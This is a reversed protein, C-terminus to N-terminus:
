FAWNYDMRRKMLTSTFLLGVSEM